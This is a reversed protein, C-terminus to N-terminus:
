LYDIIGLLLSVINSFYEFIKECNKAFKNKIRGCSGVSSPKKKKIKVLIYSGVSPNMFLQM